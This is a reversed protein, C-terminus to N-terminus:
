PSAMASYFGRHLLTPHHVILGCILQVCVTSWMYHLSLSFILRKLKNWHTLLFCVIFSVRCKFLFVKVSLWKLKSRANTPQCKRRLRTDKKSKASNNLFDRAWSIRLRWYKERTNERKKLSLWFKLFFYAQLLYFLVQKKDMKPATFHLIELVELPGGGLGQGPGAPPSLAGGSGLQLPCHGSPWQMDHRRCSWGWDFKDMGMLLNTYGILFM